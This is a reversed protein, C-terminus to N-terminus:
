RVLKVSKTVNGITWTVIYIGHPLSSLSTEPSIPANVVTSGSTSYITLNGQPVPQGSATRFYLIADSPSYTVMYDSAEISNIASSERRSDKIIRWHRTTKSENDANNHWSIIPNGDTTGGGSNNWALNTLRNVIVYSNGSPMPEAKWQQAENNVPDATSLSLRSGAQYGTQNQQAVDTIAMGNSRNVISFWGDAIVDIAWQQTESSMNRNSVVVSGNDADVYLGCGRNSVTYYYQPDPIFKEAVSPTNDGAAQKFKETLWEIHNRIFSKLYNVGEAYTSFLVLENYDHRNIPWKAFNLRQSEEILMATNDIYDIIHQEMGAAVLEKWTRNILNAFWPDQWMRNIWIKTLNSGFGKDTMLSQTVDGVRDCNNFAIDYDWLPGWFLRDDGKEKYMYTSWFCDPNGTLESSVYWQALTLSDVYQRYGNDPDTFNSSFLASEFKNYHDRIYAIQRKDIIKDDPSKITVLVGRNTQFYAPESSAFGDVELFYGGTIDSLDTMPEAQETIEVRKERVEMQDSIQYNGLYEGNLVLDVFQASANFPLGAFEGICSAVANRILTKDAYNALLTWSKAKAKEPGLFAQKKEFKIRYPKKDMGWTSNGRGRIGLKDYLTIGNEDVYRLTADLYDEKSTIPANGATEVYVTPLSSLQRYEQASGIGATLAAIICGFVRNAIPRTM